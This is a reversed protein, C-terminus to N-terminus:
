DEYIDGDFDPSAARPDTTHVPTHPVVAMTARPAKVVATANRRLEIRVLQVGGGAALAVSQVFPVFGHHSAVLEYRGPELTLVRPWPGELVRTTEEQVLLVRSGGTLLEIRVGSPEVAPVPREVATSERVSLRPLEVTLRVNADAQVEVSAEAATARGPVVVKIVHTGPAIDHLICPDTDCRKQGDVFIEAKAVRMGEPTSLRVHLSGTKPYLMFALATICITLLAVFAYAGGRRRRRTASPRTAPSLEKLAVPPFSDSKPGSSVEQPPWSPARQAQPVPTHEREEPDRLGNVDQAHGPLSALDVDISCSPAASPMSLEPTRYLEGGVLTNGPGCPLVAARPAGLRPVLEARSAERPPTQQHALPLEMFADVLTGSPGKALAARGDAATEPLAENRRPMTVEDDDWSLTAPPAPMIMEDTLCEREDWELGGLPLAPASTVIGDTDPLARRAGSDSDHPERSFWGTKSEAAMGSPRTPPPDAVAARETVPGDRTEGVDMIANVSVARADPRPVPAQAEVVRNEELEAGLRRATAGLSPETGDDEWNFHDPLVRGLAEPVTAAAVGIIRIRQNFGQGPGGSVDERTRTAAM